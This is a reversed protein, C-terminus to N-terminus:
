HEQSGKDTIVSNSWPRKRPSLYIFPIVPQYFFISSFCVGKYYAHHLASNCPKHGYNTGKSRKHCTNPGHFVPSEQHKANCSNIIVLYM